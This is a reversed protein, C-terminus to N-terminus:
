RGVWANERVAMMVVCKSIRGTSWARFIRIVNMSLHPQVITEELISHARTTKM